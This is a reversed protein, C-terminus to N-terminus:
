ISIGYKAALYATVTGRDEDSHKGLYLLVEAVHGVLPMIDSAYRAGIRFGQNMENLTGGGSQQNVGANSGNVYFLNSGLSSGGTYGYSFISPTNPAIVKTAPSFGNDNAYTTGNYDVFGLMPWGVGGGGGPDDGLSAHTGSSSYGVSYLTFSNGSPITNASPSPLNMYAYGTFEAAPRNNLLADSAVYQAPYSYSQYSVMTLTNGFGSGDTWTSITDGNVLGTLASANYWAKLGGLSGPDFGGAPPAIRVASGAGSIRLGGSGSGNIKISSM